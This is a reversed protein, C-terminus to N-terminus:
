FSPPADTSEGWLGWFPGVKGSYESKQGGFNPSFFIEPVGRATQNLSWAEMAPPKSEIGPWPVLIACAM